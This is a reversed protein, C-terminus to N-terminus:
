MGQSRQPSMQRVSALVDTPQRHVAPFGYTARVTIRRRKLPSNVDSGSASDRTAAPSMISSACFTYLICSVQFVVTIFGDPGEKGPQVLPCVTVTIVHRVLRVTTGCEGVTSGQGPHRRHRLCLLHGFQTFRYFTDSLRLGGHLAPRHVVDLLSMEMEMEIEMELYLCMFLLSQDVRPDEAGGKREKDM